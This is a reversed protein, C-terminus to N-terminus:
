LSNPPEVHTVILGEKIKTAVWRPSKGLYKACSSISEFKHGDVIVFDWGRRKQHMKISKQSHKFINEPDSFYKDFGEKVRESKKSWGRKGMLVKNEIYKPSEMAKKRKELASKTYLFEKARQRRIDVNDPNEYHKRIGIMRQTKFKEDFLNREKLLLIRQQRQEPTLDLKVGQRVQSLKRKTEDSHWNKHRKKRTLVRKKNIEDTVACVGSSLAQNVWHDKKWVKLRRLVKQEWVLAKKPCNFTKIVKIFDPDGHIKRMKHVVKSSTFYTKWLNSPHAVKQNNKIEVGYYWKNLQSWGILYTYPKYNM